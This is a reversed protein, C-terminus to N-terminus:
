FVLFVVIYNDYTREKWPCGKYIKNADPTLYLTAATFGDGRM